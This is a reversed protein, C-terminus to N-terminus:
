PHHPAMPEPELYPKMARSSILTAGPVHIDLRVAHEPKRDWGTLQAIATGAIEATLKSFSTLPCTGAAARGALFGFHRPAPAPRLPEGPPNKALGTDGLPLAAIAAEARIGGPSPNRLGWSRRANQGTTLQSRRCRGLQRLDSEPVFNKRAMWWPLDATPCIPSGTLLYVTMGRSSGTEGVRSGTIGGGFNGSFAGIVLGSGSGTRHARTFIPNGLTELVVAHTDSFNDRVSSPTCDVWPPKPAAIVPEVADEHFIVDPM